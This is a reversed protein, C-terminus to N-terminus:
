FNLSFSHRRTARYPLCPSLGHTTTAALLRACWAAAWLIQFPNTVSFISSFPLSKCLSPTSINNESLNNEKPFSFLLMRMFSLTYNSLNILRSAM